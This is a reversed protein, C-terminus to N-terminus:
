ILSVIVVFLIIDNNFCSVTFMLVDFAMILSPDEIARGSRFDDLMQQGFEKLLENKDCNKFAELTNKNVCHGLAFYKHFTEDNVERCSM